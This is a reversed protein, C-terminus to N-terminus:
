ILWTQCVVLASVSIFGGEPNARRFAPQPNIRPELEEVRKLKTFRPVQAQPSGHTGAQQQPHLHRPSKAERGFVANLHATASAPYYQDPSTEGPQIPPLHQPQQRSSAAFFRVHNTVCLLCSLPPPCVLLRTTPSHNRRTLMPGLPLNGQQHVKGVMPDMHTTPQKNPAKLM